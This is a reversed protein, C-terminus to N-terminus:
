AYGGHIRFERRIEAFVAPEKFKPDCQIFGSSGFLDFESIRGHESVLARYHDRIEDPVRAAMEIVGLASEYERASGGHVASACELGLNLTAKMALHDAHERDHYNALWDSTAQASKAQAEFVSVVFDATEPDQLARGFEAGPHDPADTTSM